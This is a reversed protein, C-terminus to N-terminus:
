ILTNIHRQMDTKVTVETSPYNMDVKGIPVICISLHIPVDRYINYKNHTSRTMNDSVHIFCTTM